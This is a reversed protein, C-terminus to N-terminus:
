KQAAKSVYVIEFKRLNSNSTNAPKLHMGPLKPPPIMPADRGHRFCCAKSDRGARYFVLAVVAVWATVVLAAIAADVQSMRIERQVLRM